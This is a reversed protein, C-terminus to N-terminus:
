VHRTRLHEALLRLPEAAEGFPTLAGIAEDILSSVKDQAGADGLHTSFTTKGDDEGQTQADILDDTIQFALGVDAAYRELAERQEDSLSLLHAPIIMSAMFLGAAKGRYVRELEDLSADGPSQTLDVHQGYIIGETGIVAALHRNVTAVSEPTTTEANRTVLEFAMAILGMASLISTAEGYVIHTSKQGRRHPSNDMAPLDDLILSAAHVFEIACAADLVDEIPRGSLEAVITSLIPRLRKGPGLTAYHMAEHVHQPEAEADPLRDLLAQDILRKRTELVDLLIHNAM